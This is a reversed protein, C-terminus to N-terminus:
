KLSKGRLVICRDMGALDKRVEVMDMLPNLQGGPAAAAIGNFIDKVDGAQDNGIELFLWQSQLRGDQVASAIDRYPALGDPGGDLALAPEFDRVDTMLGRMDESRIYPPNAFVIDWSAPPMPLSLDQEVFSARAELGHRRANRRAVRLAGASIDFGVGTTHSPLESLAALLLPGSGTYLDAVRLRRLPTAGGAEETETSQQVTSQQVGRCCHDVMAEVLTESDPRPILCHRDVHLAMSWFEKEGLVYALPEGLARRRAARELARAPGPSCALALASASPARLLAEVAVDTDYDTDDAARVVSKERRLVGAALARAERRAQGDSLSLRPARSLTLRAAELLAGLTSANSM